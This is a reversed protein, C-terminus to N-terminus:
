KAPGAHLPAIAVERGRWRHRLWRDHSAIVVTGNWRQLADELRTALDLALHNTPEDLVLISPNAALIAALEVRRVQGRSMEGQPADVDRPHVLGFTEPEVDDIAGVSGAARWIRHRATENPDSNEDQALYGITALGSARSAVSDIRGEDPALDAMLLRLLTSKGSGNAGTLLVKEGRAIQVSVPALRGNMGARVASFLPEGDSGGRADPLASLQLWRPPKRVQSEELEALRREASRVRRSVVTANRDAYFKKATRAELRPAAGPHGVSHSAVVEARLRALEEQEDRYQKVWRDRADERQEVYDTFTGSYVTTSQREGRFPVPAEDLDIQAETADDLFARDHSAVFVPGPHQALMRSLFVAGADDLHNTPEDLLMTVPRSILLHALNLRERQGGSIEDLRRNAFSSEACQALGLGALVEAARGEANWVDALTARALVADYRDAAEPTGDELHVAADALAAELERAPRLADALVDAIRAQPEFAIQQRLLGVPGPIEVRGSDPEVDGALIRLLTSKGSGNEGLLGTPRAAAVTLSVDTLVRRAGFSHSIGDARIHM